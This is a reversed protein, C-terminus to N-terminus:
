LHNGWLISHKTWELNVVWLIYLGICWPIRHSPQLGHGEPRAWRQIAGGSVTRSVLLEAVERFSVESIPDLCSSCTLNVGFNSQLKVLSTDFLLLLYCSCALYSRTVFNVNSVKINIYFAIQIWKTDGYTNVGGLIRCLHCSHSLIIM